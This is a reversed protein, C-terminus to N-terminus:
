SRDLITRGIPEMQGNVVGMYVQELTYGQQEQPQLIVLSLTNQLLLDDHVHANSHAKLLPLVRTFLGSYFIRKLKAQWLIIRQDRKSLKNQLPTCVLQYLRAKQGRQLQKGEMAYSFHVDGSLVLIDQDSKKLIYLLEQWTESFVPWHDFSTKLALAQQMRALQLGRKHMFTNNRYWLRVGMLYEALGIVPPLLAPVSSILISVGTHANNQATIWTQMNSMQEKSMIRGPAYIKQEDNDFVASRDARANAVFMPPYTPITYHWYLDVQDYIEQKICVRLAELADEGSQEAESMIDLLPTHPQQASRDSNGWGQYIWYAVLGDILLQEKGQHLMSARWQPSIDWDNLIEHDDFILYTPISALVQRIGKDQTWVHAYITAFDEFTQTGAQLGPYAEKLATPPQDAYIQDGIFLLLHPWLSERQEYHQLLWDSFASLADEEPEGSKRCSGYAFRLPQPVPTSPSHEDFTRFCLVLPFTDSHKTDQILTPIEYKSESLALQYSYWTAAQLGSLQPAAYHHGGVTVTHAQIVHTTHAERSPADGTAQLTIWCPHTFEAWIIVSTTTTARVLPGVCLQPM